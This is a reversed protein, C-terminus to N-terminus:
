QETFLKNHKYWERYQERAKPCSNILDKLFLVLDNLFLDFNAFNQVNTDFVEAEGGSRAQGWRLIISDSKHRRECFEQILSLILKKVPEINKIFHKNSEIFDNKAEKLIAGLRPDHPNEKELEALQRISLRENGLMYMGIVKTDVRQGDKIYMIKKIVALINHIAVGDIMFSVGDLSHIYPNHFVLLRQSHEPSSYLFSISLFNISQLLILSFINKKFM